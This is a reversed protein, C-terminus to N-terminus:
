EAYSKGTAYDIVVGDEVNFIFVNFKLSDDEVSEAEMQVGRAILDNGSYIPTVRMSVHNGTERIYDAVENEFPLMGEVNFSRTGTILNCENANEGTLQWGLLHCRNYLYKGDVFDYKVTHWGTPKIMGISGREGTPMTEEGVCAEVMGARGLYDLESYYEYGKISLRENDDDNFEPINDNVEAYMDGQYEPIDESSVESVQSVNFSDLVGSENAFWVCGAIVVAIIIASLKRKNRKSM